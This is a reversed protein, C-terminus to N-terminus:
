NTSSGHLHNLQKVVIVREPYKQRSLYKKLWGFGFIREPGNQETKRPIGRFTTKAEVTESLYHSESIEGRRMQLIGLVRM